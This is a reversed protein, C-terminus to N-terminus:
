VSNDAAPPGHLIKSPYADNGTVTLLREPIVPSVPLFKNAGLVSMFGAILKDDSSSDAVDESALGVTQQQSEVCCVPNSFGAGLVLVMLLPLWLYQETRQTSVQM